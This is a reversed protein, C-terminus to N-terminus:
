NSRSIGGYEAVRYNIMFSKKFPEFYTTKESFSSWQLYAKRQTHDSRLYEFMSGYDNRVLGLNEYYWEKLEKPNKAKFFIGGVGTVKASSEMNNPKQNLTASQGSLLKWGDDRKIVTGSEIIAVPFDVGATDTMIGKVIGSYNAITKSLPFVILTDWHFRIKQFGKANAELITKVSDYNLASTVEPPVWYFDESDDLYDFEGLLGKKAIAEHYQDFMDRVENDINEKNNSSLKKPEACCTLLALFLITYIIRIM